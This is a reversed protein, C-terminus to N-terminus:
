REEGCRVCREVYRRGGPVYALRYGDALWRHGRLWCGLRRM